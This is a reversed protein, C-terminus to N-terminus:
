LCEAFNSAVASKIYSNSVHVCNINYVVILARFDYDCLRGLTSLIPNASCPINRLFTLWRQDAISMLPMTNCYFLLPKVSERARYKSNDHTRRDTRIDCDLITDFRSSSDFQYKARLSLNRGCIRCQAILFNPCRGFNPYKGQFKTGFKPSRFNRRPLDITNDVVRRRRDLKNVVGIRCDVLRPQESCTSWRYSELEM